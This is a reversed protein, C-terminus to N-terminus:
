TDRGIDPGQEVWRAYDDHLRAAERPIDAETWGATSRPPHIVLVIEGPRPLLAGPPHLEWTNYLVAPVIPAGTAVALRFAGLKFPQLAGTRSRTGEPCILVTRPHREMQRRVRDLSARARAPNKRDVFVLGVAWMAQGMLPIFAFERKVLGTIGPPNVASIAQMDLFSRHNVTLICSRCTELHERGVVRLRAGSLWLMVRGWPGVFLNTIRHSILGFSLLGGLAVLPLFLASWLLVAPLYLIRRLM